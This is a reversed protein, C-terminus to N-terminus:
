NLNNVINKIGKNTKKKKLILEWLIFEIKISILMPKEECYSFKTFTM